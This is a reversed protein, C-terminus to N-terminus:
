LEEEGEELAPLLHRESLWPNLALAERLTVPGLYRNTYNSPKWGKINLPRDEITDLPGNKAQRGQGAYYESEAGLERPEDDADIFDLIGDALEETMGPVGRWM